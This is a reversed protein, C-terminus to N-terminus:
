NETVKLKIPKCLKQGFLSKVFNPHELGVWDLALSM